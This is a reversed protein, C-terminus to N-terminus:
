HAPSLPLPPFPLVSWRSSENLPVTAQTPLTVCTRLIAQKTGVADAGRERVLTGTRRAALLLSM